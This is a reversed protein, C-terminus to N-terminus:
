GGGLRIAEAEAFVEDHGAIKHRLYDIAHWARDRQEILGNVVFPHTAVIWDLVHPAARLDPHNDSRQTVACLVDGDGRDTGIRRFSNSTQVSWPRRLDGRTVLLALKRLNNTQDATMHKEDGVDRNADDRRLSIWDLGCRWIGPLHEFPYLGIVITEYCLDPISIQVVPCWRRELPVGEQQYPACLVTGPRKKGGPEEHWITQGPTLWAPLERAPTM